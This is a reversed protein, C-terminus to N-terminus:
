GIILNLLKNRIYIIKTVKKNLLLKSCIKSDMAKKIIKDKETNKEVIIIDRKKGNIQIVIKNEVDQDIKSDIDPWKIKNIDTISELCENSLHPIIPNM